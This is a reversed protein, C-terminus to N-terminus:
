WWSLSFFLLTHLISQMILRFLNARAKLKAWENKQIKMGGRSMETM